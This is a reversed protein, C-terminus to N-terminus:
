SHHLEYEINNFFAKKDELQTSQLAELVYGSFDPEQNMTVQISYEDRLEYHIPASPYDSAKIVKPQSKHHAQHAEAEFSRDKPKYGKKLALYLLIVIYYGALCLLIGKAFQWHTINELGFMPKTNTNCQKFHTSEAKLIVMACLKLGQIFLSSLKSVPQYFNKKISITQPM